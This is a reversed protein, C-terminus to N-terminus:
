WAAMHKEHDLVVWVHDCAETDSPIATGPIGLLVVLCCIGEVADMHEVAVVHCADKVAGTDELNVVPFADEWADTGELAVVCCADGLADMNQVAVVLYANEVQLGIRLV